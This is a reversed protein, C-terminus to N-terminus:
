WRTAGFTPYLAKTLVAPFVLELPWGRLPAPLAACTLMGTGPNKSTVANHESRTRDTPDANTCTEVHHGTLYVHDISTQGLGRIQELPYKRPM